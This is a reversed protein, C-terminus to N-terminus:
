IGEFTIFNGLDLTWDYGKVFMKPAKDKPIVQYEQLMARIGDTGGFDGKFWQFLPSTELKNQEPFYDTIRNLYRSASYDLEADFKEVSYIGVPPCDKAGCNLAFHIRGDRKKVRLRKEWKPVCLRPLYGLSLKNRSRRMIGHEINDFSLTMGMFPIKAETFFVGRDEYLEPNRTLIIQIYANYINMWFALKQTDTTLSKEIEDISLEKFYTEFKETSKKAMITMLLAESKKNLDIVESQSYGVFFFTLFIGLLFVKNSM